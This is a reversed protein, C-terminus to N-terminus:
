NLNKLFGFGDLKDNYGLFVLDKKIIKLISNWQETFDSISITMTSKKINSKEKDLYVVDIWKASVIVLDSDTIKFDWYATFSSSLFAMFFSETRKELEILVDVVDSYIESIDGRRSLCLTLDNWHLLIDTKYELYTSFIAESVSTDENNKKGLPTDRIIELKFM